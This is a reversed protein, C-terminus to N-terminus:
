IVAAMRMPSLSLDLVDMGPQDILEALNGLERDDRGEALAILRRRDHCNSRRLLRKFSTIERNIIM